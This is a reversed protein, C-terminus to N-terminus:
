SAARVFLRQLRYPADDETLRLRGPRGATIEEVFRGDDTEREIELAAGGRTEVLDWALWAGGSLELAWDLATGAPLVLAGEADVAPPEAAREGIGTVRAGDWAVAWPLEGAGAHHRGYAVEIRNEGLVWAGRPVDFEIQATRAPLFRRGLERGNISVAVTQPPDDGFAYSWGRLTLRRERAEVGVV